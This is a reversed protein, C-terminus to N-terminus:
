ETNQGEKISKNNARVRLYTFVLIVICCIAMIGIYLVELM